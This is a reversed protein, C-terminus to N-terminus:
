ALMILDPNLMSCFIYSIMCPFYFSLFIEYILHIPSKRLACDKNTKGKNKNWDWFWGFLFSSSITKGRKWWFIQHSYWLTNASGLSHTPPVEERVEKKVTGLSSLPFTISEAVTCNQKWDQRVELAWWSNGWQYCGSGLNPVTRGQFLRSGWGLLIVSSLHSGLLATSGALVAGQSCPLFAAWCFM